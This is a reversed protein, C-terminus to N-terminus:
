ARELQARTLNADTFDTDKGSAGVLKADYLNAGTFRTGTLVAEGFDAGFLNAKRLDAHELSARSFRAEKLNAGYLKTQTGKAEDFHAWPLVAVSFDTRDLNAGRWITHEGRAMVFSAECLDTGAFSSRTLQANKMVLRPAKGGLVYCETLRADSFDAEELTAGEAVLKFLKAGRARARSLDAGKCLVMSASLGDLNAERLDAKELMCRELTAGQFSAARAIVGGMMADIFVAGDLNSGTLDAGDLLTRDMRAGTLVAGRLNASSLLAKTFNADRLDRGSLDQGRLDQGSCDVGPGPEPPLSTLRRLRDDALAADLQDLGEAPVGKEAAIVKLRTVNERVLKLADLVSRMAAPSPTAPPSPGGRLASALAAEVDVGPIRGGMAAEVNAVVNMAAEGGKAAGALTGAIQAKPDAAPRAQALAQEIEAQHQAAEEDSLGLARKMKYALTQAPSSGELPANVPMPEGNLVARADDRVRPDLDEIAAQMGLPDKEFAELIEQYHAEALPPEALPESAILLTEIDRFDEERVPTLGRWTLFLRGDDTDAFLTDLVMRVERFRQEDDKVFARIRLAPLRVSFRPVTPHLNEFSMEEDGRLYGELQQDPPAANFYSWDFDEAYFPAREKRYSGGYARGVKGSRQPWYSSIPGFGAPEPRDNRSRVLAGPSEVTPLELTGYGKGVPNLAYGPGGYANAYSIPMSTFPVPETAAQLLGDSWFRQGTVRLTKSWAGVSFRVPCEKLPRGGPAHCTGRLFVEGRLKFDAFDGPYLSEGRRDDDDPLFAEAQMPELKNDVPPVPENPRLVFAGRVAVSLERQPPKRSTLKSGFCFSTLNKIQM